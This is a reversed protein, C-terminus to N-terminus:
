NSGQLIETVTGPFYSTILQAKPWQAKDSVDVAPGLLSSSSVSERPSFRKYQNNSNNNGSAFGASQPKAVPAAALKEYQVSRTPQESKAPAAREQTFLPVLTVPSGYVAELLPLWSARMDQIKDHFFSLDKPFTVNLQRVAIDFSVVTGQKFISALLPENILDIEALFNVWLSMLADESDEQDDEENDETQEDEESENDTIPAADEDPVVATQAAPAAGGDQDTRSRLQNCQLLILELMTHQATTKQFPIEYNYLIGLMQQLQKLTCRQAMARLQVSYEVFQEPAVDYKLWIM